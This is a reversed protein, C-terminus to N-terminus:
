SASRAARGRAATRAQPWQRDGAGRDAYGSRQAVDEISAGGALADEVKNASEFVYGRRDRKVDALVTDRVQEFVQTSAPEIDASGARALGALKPGSASVAGQQLSFVPGTLEPLLDERALSNLTLVMGAASAAEELSARPSRRSSRAPPRKM